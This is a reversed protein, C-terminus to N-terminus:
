IMASEEEEEEEETLTIYNPTKCLALRM